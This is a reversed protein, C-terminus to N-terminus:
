ECPWEWNDLPYNLGRISFHWWETRIGYLGHLKMITKLIKRNKLVEPPHDYNDTHSKKSFSDFPSGMDWTKGDAGVITLDLALGRNHMSGKSPPTVYSADPVIDWLRQQAPRPRYCDFLKLRWGYRQYIDNQLARIKTALEPRLFCRACPYIQRKTFNNETAYRLDLIVGDEETLEGWQLTDYDIVAVASSDIRTDISSDLTSVNQNQPAKCSLVVLSCIIVTLRCM